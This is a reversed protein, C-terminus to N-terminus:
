ASYVVRHSSPRGGNGSGDELTLQKHGREDLGAKVPLCYATLIASRYRRKLRSYFREAFSKEYQLLGDEDRQTFTGGNCALLKFNVMDVPFYDQMRTVITDSDLEARDFRFGARSSNLTSSGPSCHGIIYVTDNLSSFNDAKWGTSPTQGYRVIIPIKRSDSAAGFFNQVDSRWTRAIQSVTLEYHMVKEGEATTFPVFVYYQGPMTKERQQVPSSM